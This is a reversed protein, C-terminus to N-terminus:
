PTAMARRRTGYGGTVYHLNADASVPCGGSRICPPRLAARHAAVEIEFLRHRLKFGLELFQACQLGTFIGDGDPYRQMVEETQAVLYDLYPTSYDLFAWGAGNPNTGARPSGGEPSVTRWEPHRQAALEDWTATLYIPANIGVAHLADIQARLLDFNLHPHIEGVETPHYSWGHHCKSFVTVSDVYADKFAKGFAKGDFASGIGPIRGSTHFDLHIQRFRM